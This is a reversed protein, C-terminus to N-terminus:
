DPGFIGDVLERFAQARHSIEHKHEPEMEGFTIDYGRPVFMPDYGFGRDGRPPWILTGDVRGEFHRVRGDPWALCLACVFAASRDQQGELAHEVKAMALKFDREPGAWRASHLGPRGGLASVSLGSDDALAPLDSARASALAKLAANDAYTTGTEEPEPLGLDKASVVELAFPALLDAIERVKGLNHSAIVLRKGHLQGAM